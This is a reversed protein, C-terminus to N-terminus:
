PLRAAAEEACATLVEEYRAASRAFSVDLECLRRQVEELRGSAGLESLRAVAANLSGPELPRFLLGTSHDWSTGAGKREDVITDVLGGTAHAVPVAGYRQAILQVLGCPEFRSPVLVGDVGAYIRRSLADDFAVRLAVRGPYRRAAAGLAGAIHRDGDGLLVLSAGQAVLDDISRALVDWGKQESFRGVAGLLLGPPPRELRMEDLLADRCRRKGRMDRASFTEPLASDRAPDYRETDIGNVIGVLRKAKFRYAGELGQGSPYGKIEEAYSPSVAIIRDAWQIGGKLLCLDGWAELADAHFLEAPLGTYSMAEPAVRGQYANNHVVLATGIGRNVGRDLSLRLVALSLAAHWDHAVLVDPREAEALYACARSFAIFRLPDDAYGYLAPRDFLTPADFLTVRVNRALEGSRWRGEVATGALQVRVHGTDVLAPCAPAYRASAYGPIVCEVKHGRAGLARALGRVAEGLGGTQALPALESSAFLFRM